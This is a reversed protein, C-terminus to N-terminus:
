TTVAPDLRACSADPLPADRPQDIVWRANGDVALLGGAPWLPFPMSATETPVAILSLDEDLLVAGCWSCRQRVRSGIGVAEGVIHVIEGSM